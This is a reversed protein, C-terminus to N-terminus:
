TSKSGKLDRFVSTRLTEGPRQIMQYCSDRLSVAKRFGDLTEDKEKIDGAEQYRAHTGLRNVRGVQPREEEQPIFANKDSEQSESGKTDRGRRQSQGLDGGQGRHTENRDRFRGWTEM